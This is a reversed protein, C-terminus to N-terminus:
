MAESKLWAQPKWITAMRASGSVGISGGWSVCPPQELRQAEGAEGEQQQMDNEVDCQGAQFSLMAEGRSVVTLVLRTSGRLTRASSSAIMVGLPIQSMTASHSENDNQDNM